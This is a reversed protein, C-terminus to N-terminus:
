LVRGLVRVVEAASAGEMLKGVVQGNLLDAAVAARIQNAGSLSVLTGPTAIAAAHNTCDWEGDLAYGIELVGDGATKEETAWGAFPQAAVADTSALVYNDASSMRLMTGKPITHSDSVLGRKIIRSLVINTSENAM